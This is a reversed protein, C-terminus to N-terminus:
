GEFNPDRLPHDKLILELRANANWAGHAAHLMGTEPDYLEGGAEMAIHRLEADAYRERGNPVTKWGGWTYKRAGFKSIEAVAAAANFFYNMFGMFVSPKGGDLKSGKDHAGKGTPDFQGEFELTEVVEDKATLDLPEDETADEFKLEVPEPIPINRAALEAEADFEPTDTM